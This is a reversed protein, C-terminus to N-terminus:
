NLDLKITPLSSYKSRIFIVILKNHLVVDLVYHSCVGNIQLEYM